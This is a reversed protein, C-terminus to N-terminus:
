KEDKDIDKVVDIVLPNIFVVNGCNMCTVAVLPFIKGGIQVGKDEGVKMATQIDSDITWNNKGCMPCTKTSWKKNINEILKDQELKFMQKGRVCMKLYELM